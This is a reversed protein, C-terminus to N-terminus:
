GKLLNNILNIPLIWVLIRIRIVSTQIRLKTISPHSVVQASISLNLSESLRNTRELGQSEKMSDDSVWMM